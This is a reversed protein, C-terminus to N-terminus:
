GARSALVACCAAGVAASGGALALVKVRGGSPLRGWAALTAATDTADAAAGAAVWALADPGTGRQLARLAGLGLAIDRGGLARGLVTVQHQNAPEGVWPRAPVSPRVLAAVGLAARGLADAQALRRAVAATQM